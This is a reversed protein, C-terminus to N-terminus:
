EETTFGEMAARSQEAFTTIDPLTDVSALGFLKLFRDTTGYLVPKGPAFKHGRECILEHDLLTAVVGSSNVGRLMEIEPRTVPQRYAVIALTELAAPSLRVHLPKHLRALYDAYIPKTILEYGGAIEAIRLGVYRGELTELLQRVAPISINLLEAFEALSLPRDAMFLLCELAGLLEPTDTNETMM